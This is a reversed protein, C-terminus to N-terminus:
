DTFKETGVLARITDVMARRIAISGFEEFPEDADPDFDNMAEFFAVAGSQYLDNEEIAEVLIQAVNEANARVMDFYFETLENRAEADGTDRYQRWMEALKRGSDTEQAGRLTPSNDENESM